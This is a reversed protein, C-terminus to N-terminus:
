IYDSIGKYQYLSSNSVSKRWVHFNPQNLVEEWKETVQETSQLCNVVMFSGDNIFNSPEESEKECNYNVRINENCKEMYNDTARKEILVFEKILENLEEDTIRQEDWAFVGCTAFGLLYRASNACKRINSLHQSLYSNQNKIKHLINNLFINKFENPSYLRYYLSFTQGCKRLQLSLYVNSQKRLIQTFLILKDYIREKLNSSSILKIHNVYEKVPCWSKGVVFRVNSSGIANNCRSFHNSYNVLKLNSQVSRCTEFLRQHSYIVSSRLQHITQSFSRFLTM